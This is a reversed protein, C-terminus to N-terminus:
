QLLEKLARALAEYQERSNYVQASIRLVRGPPRPWPIVPVEIQFRGLLEEQLPDLYL